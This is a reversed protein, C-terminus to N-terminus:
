SIFQYEQEEIGINEKKKTEILENTKEIDM